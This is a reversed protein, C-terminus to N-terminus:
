TTLLRIHLASVPRLKRGQETDDIVQVTGTEVEVTGFEEKLEVGLAVTAPIAMGLGHLVVEKEGQEVLRRVRNRYVSVPKARTVYVENERSKPRFAPTKRGKGM